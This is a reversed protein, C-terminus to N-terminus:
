LKDWLDSDREGHFLHRASFSELFAPLGSKEDQDTNTRYFNSQCDSCFFTYKYFVDYGRDNYREDDLGDKRKVNYDVMKGDSKKVYELYPVKNGCETCSAGIQYSAWPYLSFIIFSIVVLPFQYIIKEIVTYEELFLPLLLSFIFWALMMFEFPAKYLQSHYNSGLNSWGFYYKSLYKVALVLCTSYYAFNLIEDPISFIFSSIWYLIFYLIFLASGGRISLLSLNILTTPNESDKVEKDIKQSSNSSNKQLKQRDIVFLLGFIVMFIFGYDESFLELDLFQNVFIILLPIFGVLILPTLSSYKYSDLGYASAMFQEIKKKM